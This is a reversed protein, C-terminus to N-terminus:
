VNRSNSPSEDCVGVKAEVEEPTLLRKAMMIMIPPCFRVLYFGHAKGVISLLVFWPALGTTFRPGFCRGAWWQPFGSIVILHAAIIALSLVLLRPSIPAKTYRILLYGVFIIAPVFVLPGALSEPKLPRQKGPLNM